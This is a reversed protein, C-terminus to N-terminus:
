FYGVGGGFGGGQLPAQINPQIGNLRSKAPWDPSTESHLKDHLLQNLVAEIQEHTQQNQKIIFSGNYFSLSGPGDLDMWSGDGTTYILVDALAEPDTVDLDRVNYVRTEMHLSVNDISTIILAGNRVVYGFGHPELLLTLADGLSAKSIILKVEYDEDIGFDELALTDLLIPISHSDALYTMVDSLANGPFEFNMETELEHFIKFETPSHSTQVGIKVQDASDTAAGAYDAPSGTKNETDDAYVVSNLAFFTASLFVVVIAYRVFHSAFTLM